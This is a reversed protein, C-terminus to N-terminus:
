LTHHPKTFIYMYAWPYESEDSRNLVTNSTRALAISSFSLFPMWIPFFSTFNDENSPPMVKYTSFGLCKIFFFSFGTLVLLDLLTAFYM